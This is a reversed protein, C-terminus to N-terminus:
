QPFIVEITFGKESNEFIVKGGMKETSMKTISLGLGLNGGEGKNYRNFINDLVDQDMGEGDDQITINLNGDIRYISVDIQSSAYRFANTIPNVIVQYLLEKNATIVIDSPCNLMIKIHEPRIPELAALMASLLTKLNLEERSIFSEEQDLKALLMLNRVIFNLRDTEQVIIEGIENNNDALGDRIIEGYGRIIMIPTKLEHSTNDFYIKQKENAKSLRTSMDIVSTGLSYIERSSDSQTFEIESNTTVNKAYEELEEIPRVVSNTLKRIFLLSILSILLVVPIMVLFLIQVLDSYMSVKKVVLLHSIEGMEYSEMNIMYVFYKTGAYTITNVNGESSFAKDRVSIALSYDLFDNYKLIMQEGLINLDDDLFIFENLELTEQEYSFELIESISYDEPLNEVKVVLQSAFEDMFSQSYDLFLTNFIYMTFFIILFASIMVVSIIPLLISGSLSKMKKESM